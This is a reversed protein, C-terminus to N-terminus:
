RELKFDRSLIPFKLRNVTEVVFGKDLFDGLV